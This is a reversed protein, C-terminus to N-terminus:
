GRKKHPFIRKRRALCRINRMYVHRDGSVCTNQRCATVDATAKKISEGVASGGSEDM